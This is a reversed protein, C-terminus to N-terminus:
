QKHAINSYTLEGSVMAYLVERRHAAPSHGSGTAYEKREVLRSALEMLRRKGSAFKFSIQMFNFVHFLDCIEQYSCKNFGPCYGYQMHLQEFGDVTVRKFFHDHTDLQLDAIFKDSRIFLVVTVGAQLIIDLQKHKHSFVDNFQEDSLQELEHAAGLIREQQGPDTRASLELYKIARERESPYKTNSAIGQVHEPKCMRDIVFVGAKLAGNNLTRMFDENVVVDEGNPAFEDHLCSILAQQLWWILVNRIHTISVQNERTFLFEHDAFCISVIERALEAIPQRWWELKDNINVTRGGTFAAYQDALHLWKRMQDNQGSLRMDRLRHSVNPVEGNSHAEM